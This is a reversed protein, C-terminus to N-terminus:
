RYSCLCHLDATRRMEFCGETVHHLQAAAREQCGEGCRARPLISCLFPAHHSTLRLCSLPNFLSRVMLGIQEIWRPNTMSSGAQVVTISTTDQFLMDPCPQSLVRQNRCASLDADCVSRIMSCCATKRCSLSTRVFRTSPLMRLIRCCRSSLDSCLDANRAMGILYYRTVALVQGDITISGEWVDYFRYLLRAITSKGAGSTGVIAVSEGPAVVFVSRPLRGSILMLLWLVSAVRCDHQVQSRSRACFPHSRRITDLPSEMLVFPVM